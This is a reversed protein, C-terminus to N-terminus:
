AGTLSEEAVYAVDLGQLVDSAADTVDLGDEDTISGGTEVGGTTLGIEFVEPGGEM